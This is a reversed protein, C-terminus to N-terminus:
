ISPKQERQERHVEYTDGHRKERATKKRERQNDKENARGGLYAVATPLSGEGLRGRGGGTGPPSRSGRSGIYKTHIVTDSREPQNNERGRTTKRM